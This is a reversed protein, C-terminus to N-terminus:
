GFWHAPLDLQPGRNSPRLRRSFGTPRMKPRLFHGRRHDLGRGRGHDPARRQRWPLHGGRRRIRGGRFIASM